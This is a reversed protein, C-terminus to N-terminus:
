IREVEVVPVGAAKAQRVMDATGRGGPLALVIDPKGETLMQANRIPGAAKGHKMWDAPFSAIKYGEVKAWLLAGSDAGPAVGNVLCLGGLPNFDPLRDGLIQLARKQLWTCVEYPDLDRGGCVLVRM